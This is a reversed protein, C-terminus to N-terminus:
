CKVCGVRFFVGEGLLGGGWLGGVSLQLPSPQIESSHTSATHRLHDGEQAEISSVLVALSSNEWGLVFM